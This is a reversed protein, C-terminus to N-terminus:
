KTALKQATDTNNQPRRQAAALFLPLEVHLEGEDRHPHKSRSYPRSQQGQRKVKQPGPVQGKHEFQAGNEWDDAPTNGNENRPHNEGGTCRSGVNLGHFHIGVELKTARLGDDSEDYEGDGERTVQRKRGIGKIRNIKDNNTPPWRKWDCDRTQYQLFTVALLVVFVLRQAGIFGSFIRGNGQGVQLIHGTGAETRGASSGNGTGAFPLIVVVFREWRGSREPLM